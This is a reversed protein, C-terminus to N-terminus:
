QLLKYLISEVDDGVYGAQTLTTADAMAFPVNVLRALTKALLTKGCGTPGLMVMNSKEVEQFEDAAAAGGGGGASGAPGGGAGAHGKGAAAEQQLQQQRQAAAAAAAAIGTFAGAAPHTLPHGPIASREVFAGDLLSLRGLPSELLSPPAGSPGAGAPAARPAHQRKNQLRKFHNYVAVALTKKAAAQGVVWQDLQAVLQRPTPVERVGWQQTAHASGYNQGGFQPTGELVTPAGQTAQAAAYGGLHDPYQKHLAGGDAGPGGYVRGREVDSQLTQATLPVPQVLGSCDKCASLGRASSM